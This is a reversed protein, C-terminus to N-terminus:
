KQAARIEAIMDAHKKETIMKIVLLTGVM